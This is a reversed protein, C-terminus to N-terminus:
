PIRACVLPAAPFTNQSGEWTGWEPGQLTGKRNGQGGQVYLLPDASLLEAALLTVAWASGRAVRDGCEVWMLFSSSQQQTLSLGRPSNWCLAFCSPCTWPTTSQTSSAELKAIGDQAGSSVRAWAQRRSAYGHTRRSGPLGQASAAPNGPLGRQTTAPVWSRCNRSHSIASSFCLQEM